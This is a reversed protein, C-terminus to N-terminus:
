ISGNKGATSSALLNLRTLSGVAEETRRVIAEWAKARIAGKSNDKFYELFVRVWDGPTESHSTKNSGYWTLQRKRLTKPSVTGEYSSKQGRTTGCPISKLDKGLVMKSGPKYKVKWSWQYRHGPTWQRLAISDFSSDKFNNKIMEPQLPYIYFHFDRLIVNYLSVQPLSRTGQLKSSRSNRDSPCSNREKYKWCRTDKRWCVLYETRVEHPENAPSEWHRLCEAWSIM